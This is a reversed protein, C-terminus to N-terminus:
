IHCDNPNIYPIDLTTTFGLSKNVSVEINTLEDHSNSISVYVKSNQLTFIAPFLTMECEQTSDLPDFTDLTIPRVLRFVMTLKALIAFSVWLCIKRVKFHLFAFQTRIGEFTRVTLAIM